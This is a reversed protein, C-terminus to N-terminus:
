KETGLVAKSNKSEPHRVEGEVGMAMSGAWPM